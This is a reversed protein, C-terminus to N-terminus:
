KLRGKAWEVVELAEELTQVIHMDQNFYYWFVQQETTMAQDRKKIDPRKVELWVSKGPGIRVALDPVGQGAASLDLVEYGAARLGDRIAGHNTDVKRAYRTM